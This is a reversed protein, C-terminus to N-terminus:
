NSSLSKEKAALRSAFLTTLPVASLLGISGVLTRVIETALIERNIMTLWSEGAPVGVLLLLLPLSAGAYALILTNVTAAIHDSGIRLASRYLERASLLPNARKLEMVASSQSITVDDLVGLTGILIGALLLGRTNIDPFDHLLFLVEEQAVGGLAALRTFLIALLGTLMLSLTTGALAAFTKRNVGHSSFFSVLMILVSGVIAVFVPPFGRLILPIILFFLILFSAATGLFSRLAGIGGFLVVSIIFFIGLWFLAPRRVRDSVFYQRQGQIEQTQVMVRNGAVYSALTGGIADKEHMIVTFTHNRFDGTTGILTLDLCPSGECDRSEITLIRAEFTQEEDTVIQAFSLTPLLLLFLLFFRM